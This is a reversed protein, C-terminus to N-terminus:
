RDQKKGRIRIWSEGISVSTGSLWGLRLRGTVIIGIRM